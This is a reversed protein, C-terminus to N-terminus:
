NGVNKEICDVIQNLRLVKHNNNLEVAVKPMGYVVCDEKSQAITYAGVQNMESLGQAGDNGMGTLIIGMANSGAVNAVSRFLVDVSPKHRNIRVGEIIRVTYKGAREELLMHYDGPAVLVRGKTVIDGDQAEKVELKSTDNLRKAFQATFEKPMHQVILIGPSDVSLEDLIKRVAQTGGTSAGIAILPEKNGWNEIKRPNFTLIEGVEYKPTPVINLSKGKEGEEKVVKTAKVKKTENILPASKGAVSVITECLLQVQESLEEESILKPKGFAAMAGLSLASLATKSNKTTLTSIVIVPIPHQSMLKKLFTLGDMKPMEIDLTIVDPKSKKIKNVAIYPNSAVEIEGIADCQSLISKLVQRVLASDDVILVKIGKTNSM